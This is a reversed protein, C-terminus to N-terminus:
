RTLISSAELIDKGILSRDLKKIFNEVVINHYKNDTKFHNSVSTTKENDFEYNYQENLIEVLNLILNELKEDIDDGKYNRIFGGYIFDNKNKLMSEEKLLKTVNLDDNKIRYLIGILAIIIQKGNKLIVIEDSTLRGKSQKLKKEIILYRNNLDILDVIFNKKEKKKEYNTKFISNYLQTNEFIKNKGSRSTGPKQIVFSLILQALEDNKIKPLNRAKDKPKEGRKIELFIDEDILWKQLMKMEPSNSKLDRLMIPKQSNTAEAIKSFFHTEDDKSKNNKTDKKAIIKCPIYFNKQREKKKSKFKGILTTTQGGNVISFDLLKINDGDESFDSCAITIGNNLFWFEESNKEITENIGDDVMKNRIYRRINLDFLGKDHYKNYLSILSRSSINTMVGKMADNEYYLINNVKDIEVKDEKVTPIETNLEEILKSITGPGNINLAERSIDCKMSVFNKLEEEDIEATSFINFEINGSSDDLRDLANQLERKLSDNYKGTRGIQFDDLTSQMMTVESLLEKKDLKKTYKSQGLIVKQEDDDFYVFDIGGDNSGDTVMDNIDLVDIDKASDFTYFYHLLLYNFARHDVLSTGLRSNYQSIINSIESTILEM